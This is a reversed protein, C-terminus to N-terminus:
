ACSKNRAQIELIREKLRRLVDEREGKTNCDRLKEVLKDIEYALTRGDDPLGTSKPMDSERHDGFVQDIAAWFVEINIPKELCFDAGIGEAEVLIMPGCGSIVIIPTSKIVKDSRVATIFHLGSKGPLVIDTIILDPKQARAMNLAQEADSATIVAYGKIRLLEALPYLTDFDDEVVQVTKKM